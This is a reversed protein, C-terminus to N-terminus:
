FPLDDDGNVEAENEITGENQPQATDNTPQPQTPMQTAPSPQQMTPAQTNYPSNPMAPNFTEIQSCRCDTYWREQYERSEINFIVKITTGIAIAKLATFRDEGWISFAIKRSFQEETDIVFGGRLWPGRASEGRQEPLILALKGIVEM